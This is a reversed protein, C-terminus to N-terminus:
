RLSDGVRRRWVLVGVGVLVALAAFLTWGPEVGTAALAAPAAPAPVALPDVVLNNFEQVMGLGGTGGTFGVKVTAPLAGSVTTLDVSTLEPVLGAGYDVSASLLGTSTVTIVVHRLANTRSTEIPAALLGDAPDTAVFAYNSAESGRVVVSNPQFGPGTGNYADSFAGYWDFGVASYAGALGPDDLALYGLGLGLYGAATPNATGDVLVFTSGDAGGDEGSYQYMDFEIRLGNATPIPVNYLAFAAQGHAMETIRLAGTGAPDVTACAAFDTTAATAATLCAGTSTSSPGGGTTWTGPAVDGTLPQDVLPVPAAAAPLAPSMLLLM